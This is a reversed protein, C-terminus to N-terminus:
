TSALSATRSATRRVNQGRRSRSSSVGSNASSTWCPRRLGDFGQFFPSENRCRARNRFCSSSHSDLCGFLEVGVTFTLKAPIECFCIKLRFERKINRFPKRARHIVSQFENGVHGRNTATAKRVPRVGFDPAKRKSTWKIAEQNEIRDLLLYYPSDAQDLAM